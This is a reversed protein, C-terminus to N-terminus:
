RVGTNQIEAEIQKQEIMDIFDGAPELIVTVTGQNGSEATGAQEEDVFGRQSAVSDVVENFNETPVVLEGPTLMAPVSDVGARGAATPVRGGANLASIQNQQEVGYAVLAAAAAIGLSPGVIPIGALSSYAKIAGESTAIAANVRAAAKGIGKLTQNKSNTLAVLENAATQAGQVDQRRFFQNLKAVQTNFKQEDALFQNRDAIARESDQLAQERKIEDETMLKQRLLEEDEATIAEQNEVQADRLTQELELQRENDEAKKLALLEQQQTIEAVEQEHKLQLNQIALAREQDNEIKRAQRFENEIEARRVALAEEEQTEAEGRAKQIDLLQQNSAKLADIRKQTEADIIQTKKEENKKTQDVEPSEEPRIPITQEPVDQIGFLDAGLGTPDSTVVTPREILGGAEIKAQRLEELKQIQADIARVAGPDGGLRLPTNSLEERTKKLKQLEFNIDEISKVDTSKKAANQLAGIGLVLASIGAVALGIPGTVAAWFASAGLAAPGFVATLGAIIRSLSLVGILFSSVSAVAGSIIAGWKLFLSINEVLSESNANLREVFLRLDIVLEKITPALQGGINTFLTIVTNKLKQGEASLTGFAKEAEEVLAINEKYAQNSTAVAEGVLESREALIPLVKNVEDGKLGLQELTAIIEKAGGDLNGLGEIFSQFVETANDDFTKQLQDGAIGTLKTLVEAQKGGSSIAKQIKLFAKGVVSGGLQAQVGVSRLATALGAAEAASVGFVATSRSVENAVNVIESETAAFNNGLAVISAGFRDITDIGEGTVNLIRTLSTAAQEGSLDTAVGLQAVTKTFKILNSEGTVGLQGAAQAIGLLENTAIPIDASLKQFEKGFNELKKGEINTTKGVGVLAKEYDAFEKTVLAISGAFGAFALASAKATKSLINELDKTDKKIKNVEDLFNKANGNIRIILENDGAM